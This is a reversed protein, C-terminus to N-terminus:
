PKAHHELFHTDLAGAQFAPDRAIRLHLPVNHKIGEIQFRELAGISREIAQARDKGTVILKALLPDYNPTVLNGEAYGADCRM